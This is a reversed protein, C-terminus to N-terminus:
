EKSPQPNQDQKALRPRLMQIFKLHKRVEETGLEQPVSCDAHIPDWVVACSCDWDDTQDVFLPVRRWKGCVKGENVERCQVWNGINVLSRKSNCGNLCDCDPPNLEVPEGFTDFNSTIPGIWEPVEVQFDRGIRVGSTYPETDNLMLKIRSQYPGKIHDNLEKSAKFRKAATNECLPKPRKRFCPRCYWENVPVKKVKPNCCALHFAEDCLDCILMTLPNDQLGCVKCSRLCKADDTCDVESTALVGTRPYEGLLGHSKLISICLDKASIDDGFKKKPADSSSCEGTDDVDTKMTAADNEMNPSSSCSDNACSYNDPASKPVHAVHAVSSIGQDAGTLRKVPHDLKSIYGINMIRNKSPLNTIPKLCGDGVLSESCLCSLPESSSETSGTRSHVPVKRRKYVLNNREVGFDACM